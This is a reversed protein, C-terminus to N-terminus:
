EEQGGQEVLSVKVATDNDARFKMLRVGQTDRGVQSVSKLPLRIVQGKKSIVMLDHALDESNVILACVLKGTKSSVKMARIGSGGRKQIRYFKLTTRKGFGNEGVTLLQEKKILAPSIVAMNVVFDGNKLRVGRVGAANRGMPRADKEAFRISQGRNTALIIEDKGTTPEVWQLRDDDKLKIAILGSRRVNVFDAVDVKKVLGYKTTMFLYKFSAMDDVSLVSSVKEESSLQLFNVLAQGKSTRTSAPIDYAKMQFARGRTTFFLLDNHTMTSFFQEVVDEEKTTLGVVGKGGRRQTRFTDPALRKIYGDKTIMVMTPENPIIDEQSFEGLAAKVVKTRREDGYKQKVYKLDDQIMKLIKKESGLIAKLEKILTLKEKLEELIKMRELNALNQLRMELIAIAQVESLKFNKMLGNKADDRDKSKKILKVVADINDLAIKLGDLIHCREQAKKLDFETRRRIVVQRHKIYESLVDKLTLVRPQIGDVLALMNVNFNTQLQTLKFLKNLVKKPYADKKLEVVIRVGDKDSEDRLDKIEDFKKDKVLEAIKQLLLAKNVQYPIETVIIKFKANADEEIDAKARVVIQGRGTAYAETIDKVNYIIGGTPFDPGQVIKVLDDVDANPNDVLYVIADCLESLNHPPINTAMGVAIGMAGNLLLNPLKAPLVLPEKHSGDYNPIFDVTNKELDLLLEDAIGALRAETYRMAAAGDGDMSGFNGQGDVLEYRMSFDQAMRVMSDYVAVDGHPHYKGLVEGVVTASKRYKASSRLGITWMAYLIRRHVPKLGDRVDPLARSVIVSMAYDLYSDSIEDLIPRPEVKGINFEINKQPIKKM